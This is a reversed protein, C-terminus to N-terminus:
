QQKFILNKSNEYEQVYQISEIGTNVHSSLLALAKQTERFAVEPNDFTGLDKPKGAQLYTYTSVTLLVAISAVLSLLWMKNLHEKKQPPLIVEGKFQQDKAATLYNFM